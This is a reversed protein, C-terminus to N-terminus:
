FRNKCIYGNTSLKIGCDTYAWGNTGIDHNEIVNFGKSELYEIAKTADLDACLNVEEPYIFDGSKAITTIEEKTLVGNRKM